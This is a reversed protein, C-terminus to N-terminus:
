DSILPVGTYTRKECQLAFTVKSKTWKLTVSLVVTTMVVVFLAPCSVVLVGDMNVVTMVVVPLPPPVTTFVTIPM